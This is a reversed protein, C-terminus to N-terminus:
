DRYALVSRQAGADVGERVGAAALVPSKTKLYAEGLANYLSEPYTPPDAYMRQNDFEKEAAATLTQLGELTYGRALLMRAGEAGAGRNRLTGDSSKNKELEGKLAAHAAISKEAKELDGKGFYARAEFYNRNMKDLFIDRWPINSEKLVDDWREFKVLGGACRPSETPIAHQASRRRQGASRAARRDVAPGRVHARDAM